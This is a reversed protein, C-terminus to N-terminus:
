ENVINWEPKLKERLPLAYIQPYDPEFGKEIMLHYMIYEFIPELKAQSEGVLM